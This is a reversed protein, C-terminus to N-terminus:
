RGCAANQPLDFMGVVQVAQTQGGSVNDYAYLGTVVGCLRAASGDVLEGTSGFSIFHVFNMGPLMISGSYLGPIQKEAHIEVIVGKVCLRMSRELDPNKKVKLVSTGAGTPRVDTFCGNKNLWAALLQAGISVTNVTDEMRTTAYLLADAFERKELIQELPSLPPPPAAPAISPAEVAQAPAPSGPPRTGRLVDFALLGFLLAGLVILGLRGVIGM